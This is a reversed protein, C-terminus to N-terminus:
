TRNPSHVTGVVQVTRPKGSCKRDDEGSVTEVLRWCWRFQLDSSDNSTTASLLRPLLATTKWEFRARHRRSVVLSLIRMFNAPVRSARRPYFFSPPLLLRISLGDRTIKNPARAPRTRSARRTRLPPSCAPRRHTPRAHREFVRQTPGRTSGLAHLAILREQAPSAAFHSTRSATPACGAGEPRRDLNTLFPDPSWRSVGRVIFRSRPSAVFVTRM